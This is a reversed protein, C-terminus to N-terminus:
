RVYVTSTIREWSLFFIMLGSFLLLGWLEIAAHFPLQGLRRTMRGCNYAENVFLVLLAIVGVMVGVLLPRLVPPTKHLNASVVVAMVALGGFITWVGKKCVYLYVDTAVAAAIAAAYVPDIGYDGALHSIALYTFVTMSYGLMHVVFMQLGDHAQVHVGHSYAHWAEFAAYALLVARVAPTRAFFLAAVLLILTSAANILFSWPQLVPLDRRLPECTDFPFTYSRM